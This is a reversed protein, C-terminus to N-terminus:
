SSRAPPLRQRMARKALAERVPVSAEIMGEAAAHFKQALERRNQVHQVGQWGGPEEIRASTASFENLNDFARYLWVLDRLIAIDIDGFRSALSTFVLTSFNLMAPVPDQKPNWTALLKSAMEVNGDIEANLALAISKSDRRPRLWLEWAANWGVGGFLGGVLAIFIQVGTM